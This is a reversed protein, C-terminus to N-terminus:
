KQELRAIADDYFVNFEPDTNGYKIRAFALATSLSSELAAIRSQQHQWASCAGAAHASTYGGLAHKTLVFAPYKESYWAEFEARMQENM